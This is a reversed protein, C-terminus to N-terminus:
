IQYFAPEMHVSPLGKQPRQLLAHLLAAMHLWTHGTQAVQCENVRFEQLRLGAALPLLSSKTYLRLYGLFHITELCPGLLSLATIDLNQFTPIARGECALRRLSILCSLSTPLSCASSSPTLKLWLNQLNTLQQVGPIAAAPLATPSDVELATLHDSVHGAMADRISHM